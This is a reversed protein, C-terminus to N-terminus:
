PIFKLSGVIAALVLGIVTMVVSRQGTEIKEIRDKYNSGREELQTITREALALRAELAACRTELRTLDSQDVM